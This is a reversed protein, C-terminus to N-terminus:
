LFTPAEFDRDMVTKRKSKKANEISKLCISQVRNSLQNIADKSTSLGKEDKVFKKVKSAVVLVEDIQPNEVYLNFDKGMVTKRGVKETHVMADQCAKLIDENLPGFFNQSTNMDATDKIFKKVKSVVVLGEM